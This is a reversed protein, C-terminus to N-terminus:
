RSFEFSFGMFGFSMMRALWESLASSRWRAPAAPRAMSAAPQADTSSTSRTARSLRSSSSTTTRSFLM